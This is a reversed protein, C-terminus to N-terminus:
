APLVSFLGSDPLQAQSRDTHIRIGTQIDVIFRDLQFADAQMVIEASKARGEMFLSGPALQLQHLIHSDVCKPGAVIRRGLFQQIETILQANQDDIFRKIHPFARFSLIVIGTKERFPMFPVHSGPDAPFYVIYIGIETSSFNGPHQLILDFKVIRGAMCSNCEPAVIHGPFAPLTTGIDYFGGSVIVPFVQIGFVVTLMRVPDNVATLGATDQGAPSDVM